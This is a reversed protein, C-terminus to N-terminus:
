NLYCGIWVWLSINAQIYLTLVHEPTVNSRLGYRQHQFRVSNKGGYFYTCKSGGRASEPVSSHTPGFVFLCSKIFGQRRRYM